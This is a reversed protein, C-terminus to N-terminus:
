KLYYAKGTISMLLNNVGELKNLNVSDITIIRPANKLNQLVQKLNDYSGETNLTFAIEQLSQDNGGKEITIPQFQLASISAQTTKATSELSSILNAIDPNRPLSNEIKSATTPDISQYNKTALSLHDSKKTLKALIEQEDSLKKQLVVITQVTPKIAFIIFVITMTITFIIYGYTRVIPIKLVPKIYTFYRFYRNIGNM